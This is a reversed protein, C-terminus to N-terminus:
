HALRYRRRPAHVRGPVALGALGIELFRGCNESPPVFDEGGLSSGSTEGFARGDGASPHAAPHTSPGVQRYGVSIATQTASSGEAQLQRTAAEHQESVTGYREAPQVNNLGGARYFRMIAIM